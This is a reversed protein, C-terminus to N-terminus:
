YMQKSYQKLCKKTEYSQDCKIRFKLVVNKNVNVDHNKLLNKLM